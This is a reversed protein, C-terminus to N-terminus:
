SVGNLQVAVRTPICLDGEFATDVIATLEITHRGGIVEIRATPTM